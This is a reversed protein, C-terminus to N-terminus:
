APRATGNHIVLASNVFGNSKVEGALAAAEQCITFSSTIPPMDVLEKRPVFLLVASKVPL